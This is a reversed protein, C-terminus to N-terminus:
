ALGGHIPCLPSPFAHRRCICRLQESDPESARRRDGYEWGVMYAILLLNVFVIAGIGYLITTSMRPDEEEPHVSLRSM